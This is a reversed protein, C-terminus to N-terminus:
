QTMAQIIREQVFFVGWKSSSSLYQSSSCSETGLVTQLFMLRLFSGMDHHLMFNCTGDPGTSCSTAATPHLDQGQRGRAQQERATRDKGSGETGQSYGTGNM